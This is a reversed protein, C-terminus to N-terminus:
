RRRAAADQASSAASTRWPSLLGATPLSPLRISALRRSRARVTQSQVKHEPLALVGEEWQADDGYVALTMAATTMPQPQQNPMRKPVPPPPRVVGRRPAAPRKAPRSHRPLAVAQQLEPLARSSCLPAPWCRAPRPAPGSRRLRCSHTTAPHRSLTCRALLITHQSQAAWSASAM